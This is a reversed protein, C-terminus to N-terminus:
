RRTPEIGRLSLAAIVPWSRVPRELDPRLLLGNIVLFKGVLALM